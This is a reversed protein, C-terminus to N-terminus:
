GLHVRHALTLCHRAALVPLAFSPAPLSALTPRVDLATQNEYAVFGHPQRLHAQAEFPDPLSAADSLQTEMAREHAHRERAASQLKRRRSMVFAAVVFAVVVVAIVAAAAVYITVNDGGSDDPAAPAVASDGSGVPTYGFTRPM